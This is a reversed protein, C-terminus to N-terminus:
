AGVCMVLLGSVGARRASAPYPTDSAMFASASASALNGGLSAGSLPVPEKKTDDDDDDIQHM